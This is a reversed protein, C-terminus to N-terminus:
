SFILDLHDISCNGSCPISTETTFPQHTETTLRQSLNGPNMSFLGILLFIIKKVAVLECMSLNHYCRRQLGLKLRQLAVCKCGRKSLLHTILYRCPRPVILWHALSVTCGPSPQNAPTNKYRM